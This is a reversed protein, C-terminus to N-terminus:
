VVIDLEQDDFCICLMSLTYPFDPMWKDGWCSKFHSLKKNSSEKPKFSIWDLTPAPDWPFCLPVGGKRLWFLCLTKAAHQGYNVLLATHHESTSVSAEAWNGLKSWLHLPLLSPLVLKYGLLLSLRELLTVFALAMFSLFFFWYLWNSLGWNETSWFWWLCFSFIFPLSHLYKCNRHCIVSM